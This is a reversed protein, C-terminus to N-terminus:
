RWLVRQADPLSAAFAALAEENRDVLAIAAGEDYLRQATARGIGSAAGTVIAVRDTFRM